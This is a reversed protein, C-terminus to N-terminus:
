IFLLLVKPMRHSHANFMANNCALLCFSLTLSVCTPIFEVGEGWANLAAARRDAPSNSRSASEHDSLNVFKKKYHAFQFIGFSRKKKKSSSELLFFAFHSIFFTLLFLECDDMSVETAVASSRSTLASTGIQMDELPALSLKMRPNLSKLAHDIHKIYSLGFVLFQQRHKAEWKILEEKV